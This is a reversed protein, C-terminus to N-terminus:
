DSVLWRMAEERTAFRPFDRQSFSKFNEYFVQPLSETGLWASRKVYPRDMALAKKIREAAQKDVQAGTFDALTLVTGRPHEAIEEQAEDVISIIEASECRSFDLLLIKKGEHDIFRLRDTM